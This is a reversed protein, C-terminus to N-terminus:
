AWRHEKLYNNIEIMSPEAKLIGTTLGPQNIRTYPPKFEEEAELAIKILQQRLAPKPFLRTGMPQKKFKGGKRREVLENKVLYDVVVSLPRYTINSRKYFYTAPHYEKDDTEGGITEKKMHVVLWKNYLACDALNLLVLSCHRRLKEADTKNRGGVTSEYLDNLLLNFDSSDSTNLKDPVKLNVM